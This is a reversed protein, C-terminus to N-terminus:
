TPHTGSKFLSKLRSLCHRRLDTAMDLKFPLFKKSRSSNPQGRAHSLFGKKVSKFLTKQVLTTKMDKYCRYFVLRIPDVKQNFWISM